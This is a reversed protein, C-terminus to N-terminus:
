PRSAASTTTPGTRGPTRTGGVIVKEDPKRRAASRARDRGHRAGPRLRHRPEPAGRDTGPRRPLQFRCGARSPSRRWPVASRRCCRSRTATPSRRARSRRWTRRRAPISGSAHGPISPAGPTLPDGPYDWIFQISGRQMSDAPRWPGEPYVPGRVFGDDEPDSYIIVGVAGHQEALHVKVGRFSQGYRVLVIKGAVSVGLSDLAAYDAPLGYNAYVVPATVDGPPSYANYAPVVDQFDQSWPYPREKVTAPAPVAQDDVGPHEGATVDLHRLVASARRARVGRLKALASEISGSRTRGDRRPAAAPQLRPEAAGPRRRQGGAPLGGRVPAAAGRSAPRSATWIVKRRRRSGSRAPSRWRARRWCRWGGARSRFGEHCDERRSSRVM